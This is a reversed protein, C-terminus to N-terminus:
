RVVRFTLFRQGRRATVRRGTVSYGAREFVARSVASAWASRHRVGRVALAEDGAALLARGVGRRTFAPDTYLMHVHGDPRLEAFGAITSGIEAVLTLNRTQRIRWAALPLRAPAWVRRQPLSYLGAAGIRVARRYLRLTAPADAPTASRISVAMLSKM